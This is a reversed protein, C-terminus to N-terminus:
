HKINVNNTQHITIGGHAVRVGALFALLIGALLAGLAVASFTALAWLALAGLAVTAGLAVAVYPLARRWLPRPRHLALPVLTVNVAWHGRDNIYIRSVVSGYDGRRTGAELRAMLEQRTRGTLAYAEPAEGYQAAIVEAPRKCRVIENV